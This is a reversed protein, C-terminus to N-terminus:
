IEELYNNIEKALVSNNKYCNQCVMGKDFDLDCIAFYSQAVESMEEHKTETHYVKKCIDCNFNVKM